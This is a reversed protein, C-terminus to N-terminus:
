PDHLTKGLNVVLLTVEKEESSLAKLLLELLLGIFKSGTVHCLAIILISVIFAIANSIWIFAQSSPLIINSVSGDRRVLSRGISM